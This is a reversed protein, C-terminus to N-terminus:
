LGKDTQTLYFPTRATGKLRRLDKKEESIALNLEKITQFQIMTDGHRTMLVGSSRMQKLTTIREETAAIESATETDYDAM